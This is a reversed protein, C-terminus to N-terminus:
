LRCVVNGARLYIGTYFEDMTENLAPNILHNILFLDNFAALEM